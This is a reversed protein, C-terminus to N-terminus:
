VSQPPHPPSLHPIPMLTPMCASPCSYAYILFFFKGTITASPPYAHPHAHMCISMLLCLHSFYFKGTSPRLCSYPILLHAHVRISYIPIFSFLFNVQLHCPLHTHVRIPSPSPRWASLHIHMLLCVAYTLFLFSVQSHICMPWDLPPHLHWVPMHIPTSPPHNHPHTPHPLHNFNIHSHLHECIQLDLTGCEVVMTWQRCWCGGCGDADVIVVVM